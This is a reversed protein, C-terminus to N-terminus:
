KAEGVLVLDLDSFSESIATASLVKSPAHNTLPCRGVDVFFSLAGALRLCCWAQGWFILAVVGCLVNRVGGEGYFRRGHIVRGGM